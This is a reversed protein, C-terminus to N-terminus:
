DLDDDGVAGAYAAYRGRSFDESRREPRERRSLQELRMAALGLEVAAEAADSIPLEELDELLSEVARLVADASRRPMPSLKSRKSLLRTFRRVRKSNTLSSDRESVDRDTSTATVAATSAVVEARKSQELEGELSRVRQELQELRALVGTALEAYSDHEIGHASRATDLAGLITQWSENIPALRSIRDEAAALKQRLAEVSEWAARETHELWLKNTPM